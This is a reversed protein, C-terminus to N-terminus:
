AAIAASKGKGKGKSAKRAEAKRAQPTRSELAAIEATLENVRAQARALARTAVELEKRKDALIEADSRAKPSNVGADPLSGTAILSETAARAERDSMEGRKVRSAIVTLHKVHVPNGPRKLADVLEPMREPDLNLAAVQDPGFYHKGDPSRIGGHKIFTQYESLWGRLRAPTITWKDSAAYRGHEDRLRKAIETPKLGTEVMLGYLRGLEGTAAIANKYHTGFQASLPRFAKLAASAKASAKGKGKGTAKGSVKGSVKSM